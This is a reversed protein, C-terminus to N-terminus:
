SRGPSARYGAEAQLVPPPQALLKSYIKTIDGSPDRHVFEEIAQTPTLEYSSPSINLLAASQFLSFLAERVASARHDLDAPVQDLAGGNAPTSPLGLAVRTEYVEELSAAVPSSGSSVSRATDRLRGPQHGLQDVIKRRSPFRGRGAGSGGEPYYRPWRPGCRPLRTTSTKLRAAQLKWRASRIQGAYGRVKTKAAMLDAKASELAAEKIEVIVRYPKDDLQVLLDGSHVRNNADVYVKSVQGLVRVAVSTVHSNM